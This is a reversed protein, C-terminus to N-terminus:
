YGYDQKLNYNADLAAQPIPLLESHNEAFYFAYGNSAGTANLVNAIAKSVWLAKTYGSISSAPTSRTAASIPCSAAIACIGSPRNRNM